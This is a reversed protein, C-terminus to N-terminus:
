IQGPALKSKVAKGFQEAGALNEEYGPIALACRALWGAVNTYPSVNWGVAQFDYNSRIVKYWYIIFM